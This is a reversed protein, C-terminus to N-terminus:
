DDVPSTEEETKQSRNYAWAIGAGVIAIAGMALALGAGGGEDDKKDDRKRLTTM